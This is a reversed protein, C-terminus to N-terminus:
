MELESFKTKRQVFHDFVILKKYVIHHHIPKVPFSKRKKYYLSFQFFFQWHAKLIAVGDRPSDFIFFKLCAVWDLFVRFLLYIFLHKLPLNKVLMALGNKFNLFTKRPNSKSLTGGGVHYVASQGCYMVKKGANNIRWCLDIEEMHAFFDEDLGGTSHFIESRVFLCAGTAWFIQCNDDYQGQDEELHQFIRGRCFPYGLKDIFGGAAGAYEFHTKQSYSLIKPQVAAVEEDKEMLQLVPDIWNETVEVDSNLLVYYMADVEKLAQNYGKSYGGNEHLRIIRLDPFNTKLYDISDDTSCNDAVIVEYGQSHQVVGPLFQELHRRGNYNLIIIAATVM